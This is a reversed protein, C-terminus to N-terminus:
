LVSTSQLCRTVVHNESVFQSCTAGKRCFGSSGGSAWLLSSAQLHLPFACFPSFFLTSYLSIDTCVWKNGSWHWGRRQMLVFLQIAVFRVLFHDERIQYVVHPKASHLLKPQWLVPFLFTFASLFPHSNVETKLVRCVLFYVLFAFSNQLYDWSIPVFTHTPSFYLPM